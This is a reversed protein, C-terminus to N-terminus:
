RLRQYFRWLQPVEEMSRPLGHLLRQRTPLIDNAFTTLHQRAISHLATAGMPDQKSLDAGMGVIFLCVQPPGSIGGNYTEKVLIKCVDHERQLLALIM